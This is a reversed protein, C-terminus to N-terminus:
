PLSPYSPSPPLIDILLTGTSESRPSILIPVGGTPDEDGQGTSLTKSDAALGTRGAGFHNFFTGRMGPDFPVFRSSPGLGHQPLDLGSGRRVFSEAEEFSFDAPTDEPIGDGLIQATGGPRILLTRGAQNTMWVLGDFVALRTLIRGGGQAQVWGDESSMEDPNVVTVLFDTGQAALVANPTTVEFRSQRGRAGSVQARVAGNDVTLAADRNRSDLTFRQMQVRTSPGMAVLSNDALRLHAVGDETTRAWDQAGLRRQTMVRLWTQSGALRSEVGGQRREVTIWSGGQALAPIALLIGLTIFAVLAGPGGWRTWRM